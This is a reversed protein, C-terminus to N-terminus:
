IDLQIVYEDVVAMTTLAEGLDLEAIASAYYGLLGLERLFPVKDAGGEGAAGLSREL